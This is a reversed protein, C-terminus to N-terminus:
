LFFLTILFLHLMVVHSWLHVSTTTKQLQVNIEARHSEVWYSLQRQLQKFWHRLQLLQLYVKQKRKNYLEHPPPNIAWWVVATVNRGGDVVEAQLASLMIALLQKKTVLCLHYKCITKEM